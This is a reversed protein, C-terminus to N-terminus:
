DTGLVEMLANSLEEVSFPKPLTAKFGYETYNAVILDTSYGSAVIAKVNPDIKQLGKITDLGGMGGAITLDLIVANFPNTKIMEEQYIKLATEGDAATVVEYGLYTLLDSLVMRINKEDDM